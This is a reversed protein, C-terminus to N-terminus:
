QVLGARQSTEIGYDYVGTKVEPVNFEKEFYGRLERSFQRVIRDQFEPHQIVPNYSVRVALTIHRREHDPNGNFDLHFYSFLRNQFNEQTEQLERKEKELAEWSERLRKREDELENSIDSLETLLEEEGPSAKRVLFSSWARILFWIRKM